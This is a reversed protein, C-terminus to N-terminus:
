GRPPPAGAPDRSRGLRCDVVRLRLHKQQPDRAPLSEGEGALPAENQLRLGLRIIRAEDPHLQSLIDAFAPHEDVEDEVAETPLSM